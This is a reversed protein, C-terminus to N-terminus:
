REFPFLHTHSTTGAQNPPGSPISVFSNRQQLDLLNEQTLRVPHSHPETGDTTSVYTRGGPPPDNIDSLPITARHFHGNVVESVSTIGTIAGTPDECGSAWLALLVASLAAGRALPKLGGRM